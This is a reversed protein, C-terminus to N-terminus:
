ELVVIRAGTRSENGKVGVYYVGSKLGNSHLRCVHVGRGSLYMPESQLQRGLVDYISLELAGSGVIGVVASNSYSERLPNPTIFMIRPGRPILPQEGATGVSADIALKLRYPYTQYEIYSVWPRQGDDLAAGHSGGEEDATSVTTAKTVVTGAIQFYVVFHYPAGAFADYTDLVLHAINNTDLELSPHVTTHAEVINDNWSVGYRASYHLIKTPEGFGNYECWAIKPEGTVRDLALATSTFAQDANPVDVDSGSFAGSLANRHALRL